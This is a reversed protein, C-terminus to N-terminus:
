GLISGGINIAASIIIIAFLGIIFTWFIYNFIKGVLNLIKEIITGKTKDDLVSALWCCGALVLLFAVIIGIIIILGLILKLIIM